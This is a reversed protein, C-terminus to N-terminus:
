QDLSRKSETLSDWELDIQALEEQDEPSLKTLIRNRREVLNREKERILGRTEEQASRRAEPSVFDM